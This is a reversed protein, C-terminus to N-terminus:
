WSFSQMVPNAPLGQFPQPSATSNAAIKFTNISAPSSRSAGLSFSGSQTGTAAVIKSQCAVFAGATGAGLFSSFNSYGSGVTVSTTGGNIAVSNFIVEDAQTTAATTGTPPTTTATSNTSQASKDLALTTAIGSWEEIIFAANTGLGQNMTCTFTTAGGPINMAYWTSLSPSGGVFNQLTNFTYGTASIGTALLASSGDGATVYLFNGATTTLSGTNSAVGSVAVTVRQVFPM